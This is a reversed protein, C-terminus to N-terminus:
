ISVGIISETNSVTSTDKFDIKIVEEQINAAIIGSYDVTIAAGSVDAEVSLFVERNINPSLLNDAVTGGGLNLTSNALLVDAVTM